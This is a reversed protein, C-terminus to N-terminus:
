KQLNQINTRLINLENLQIQSEDKTKKLEEELRKNKSKEENLEQIM